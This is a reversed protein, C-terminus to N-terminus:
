QLHTAAKLYDTEALRFEDLQAAVETFDPDQQESASKLAAALNSWAAASTRMREPLGLSEIGPVLSAAWELFEAYILRFGGGGTGRKEIIQYTLRVTWRWDEFTEWNKLDKQWTDLAAMGQFPNSRDTLVQQNYAIAKVIIGALDDPPSITNPAFLNGKLDFISGGSFRAKLLADFPVELVSERETDTVFFVKRKEDYGWVAILHGPFHTSANYYPLYYIDTQIITPRGEGLHSKLRKESQLPDDFQEWMFPVGIHNFFRAELDLSRVHTMRSAPLKGSDLYWIGLGSGIGFCAPEDFPIGHFNVLSRIGTSACHRGSIHEHPIRIM